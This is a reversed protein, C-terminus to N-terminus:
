TLELCVCPPKVPHTDTRLFVPLTRLRHRRPQEFDAVFSLHYRVRLTRSSDPEM